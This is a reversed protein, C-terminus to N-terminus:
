YYTTLSFPSYSAAHFPLVHHFYIVLQIRNGTALPSLPLPPPPPPNLPPSSSTSTLDLDLSLSLKEDDPKLIMGHKWVSFNVFTLILKFKSFGGYDSKLSHHIFFIHLAKLLPKNESLDRKLSEVALM